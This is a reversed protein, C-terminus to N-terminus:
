TLELTAVLNRPIAMGCSVVIELGEAVTLNPRLIDKSSLLFIDGVYVHNTPVYVTNLHLDGQPTEIRSEGTIFGFAFEGSRPHKIIVCEKFAKAKDDDPNIATSVQKSASYIHKVLPLKKIIWEGLELFWSGVWSSFFLGTLFIFVMSTLFGLGFVKYGFLKKYVPSFFADFFGVFWYTLFGTVVIPFLIAFGTMFRKTAWSTLVSYVAERPTNMATRPSAPERLEPVSLLGRDEGRPAM